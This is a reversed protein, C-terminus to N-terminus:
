RRASAPVAPDPAAAYVTPRGLRIRRPVLSARTGGFNQRWPASASRQGIQWGVASAAARTVGARGRRLAVSL